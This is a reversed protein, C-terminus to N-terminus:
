PRARTVDLQVLLTGAAVTTLVGDPERMQVDWVLTMARTLGETDSPDLTVLLQGAPGNLVEVGNAAGAILTKQAVANVDPDSLRRKATFWFDRGTVNLPSGSREVEVLLRITDGRRPGSLAIDSM